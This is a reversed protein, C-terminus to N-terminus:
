AGHTAAAQRHVRQRRGLGDTMQHRQDLTRDLRMALAGDFGGLAEAQVYQFQRGIPRTCKGDQVIDALRLTVRAGGLRQDAADNCQVRVVQDSGVFERQDQEVLAAQGFGLMMGAICHADCRLVRLGVVQHAHDHCLCVPRLDTFIMIAADHFQGPLAIRDQQGVQGPVQLVLAVHFLRAHEVLLRHGGCRLHALRQQTEGSEFFSIAIEIRCCLDEILCVHLEGVILTHAERARHQQPPHAAVIFCQRDDIFPRHRLGAQDWRAAPSPVGARGAQGGHRHMSQM